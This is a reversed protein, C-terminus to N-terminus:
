VTETLKLWKLLYMTNAVIPLKVVTLFTGISNNTFSHRELTRATEIQANTCFVSINEAWKM